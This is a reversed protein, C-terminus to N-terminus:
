SRSGEISKLKDLEISSSFRVSQDYSWDPVRYQELVLGLRGSGDSSSEASSYQKVAHFADGKFRVFLNPKPVVEADPPRRIDKFRSGILIRERPDSNWLHLQGGVMDRPVTLYFVSVSHALFRHNRVVTATDDQHIGVADDQPLGSLGPKVNLVNLVFVNAKKDMVRDLYITLCKLDPNRQIEEYGEKNFRLVLGSSHKFNKRNLNNPYESHRKACDLLRPYWAANLYGPHYHVLKQDPTTSNYEYMKIHAFYTYCGVAIAVTAALVIKTALILRCSHLSFNNPEFDPNHRREM